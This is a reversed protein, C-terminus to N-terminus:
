KVVLKTIYSDKGTSIRVFYTGQAMGSLDLTHSASGTCEVEACTLTRGQMDVLSITAHGEVDYLVVTTSQSAPNPRIAYHPNADVNDIGINPTTTFSSASAWISLWDEGCISRVFVEYETEPELGTLTHSTTTVTDIRNTGPTMGRFGYNVLWTGTNNSGATWRVQATSATIDFVTVDEVPACEDTTVALTDSPDSTVIGGGCLTTVTFYYTTAPDLGTITLPHTTADMVEDVMTNFMHVQWTNTDVEASWDLVIEHGSTSVANLGTPVDCPMTDTVFTGTNWDSYYNTDCIQRISYSYATAPMLDGISYSMTNVVTAEPWEIESALKVAVEYSGLGGTWEITATTYTTSINDIEPVHCTRDGCTVLRMMNRYQVLTGAPITSNIRIPVGTSSTYIAVNSDMLNVRKESTYSGYYDEAGSRLVAVVVNSHGDWTFVSDFTFRNWGSIMNMNGSFYPTLSDAPLWDAGSRFSTRDTQGLYITCNEANNIPSYTLFELADVMVLDAMESSDILQQTYTYQNYEYFPLYAYNSSYLEHGVTDFAPNDCIETQFFGAIVSSTDASDCIATLEYEYRTNQTLGNLVISDDTLQLTTFADSSGLERYSFMHNNAESTWRITADTTTSTYHVNAPPLCHTVHNLTIDDMYAYWTSSPRDAKIAVYSGNGTYGEFTFTYETWTTNGNITLTDVGEFTTIDDPDTMVGVKFVPTYSTSSSKAWFSLILSNAPAVTTDVEPLVICYYDGYTNATTSGYWYMGKAGTHAYSTSASIYPYGYYSSANNLHHWCYAFTNTNSAGTNENEFSQFYPFTSILGCSTRAVHAFSWSSTDTASCICRVEVDYATSSALGTVSTSNTSCFFTTDGNPSSLRVQYGLAGSISDWTLDFGHTTTNSEQVNSPRACNPTLYLEVDDMYCYWASTSRSIKFAPFTGNGTYSAFSSEFGQWELVNEVYVTDVPVFSEASDPDNMVGVVFVPHYSTSTPRAWFTISTNAINYNSGLEPLVCFTYAPYSSSTAGYWYLYQNGTRSSTGSSVYPYYNTSAGPAVVRKWCYPFEAASGTAVGEFGYSFPLVDIPVCETRFSSSVVDSTDSGCLGRVYVMYPTNPTLGSFTYTTDTVLTENGFSSGGSVSVLYSPSTGTWTVFASDSTAEISEIAPPPCTTYGITIEDVYAYWAASGTTPHVDHIAVFTGEGTYSTLGGVLEQWNTTGDTSVTQCPVFTSADNPNTMVGIQFTPHYTASTAKTWFKVVVNQINFIDTNIQPSVLMFSDPYNVGPSAPHYWYLAKSGLHQYTTSNSVYPYFYMHADSNYTWCPIEPRSTSSSVAVDEWDLVIPLSDVAICYTRFTIRCPEAIGNDPCYPLIWADYETNPQLNIFSVMTDTVQIATSDHFNFGSHGLYVEWGGSSLTDLWHVDASTTTINDVYVDEVKPCDPIFQLNVEDLYFYRYATPHSYGMFALYSRHAPANYMNVEHYLPSTANVYVSDFAVFTSADNPDTVTGIYLYDYYSSSSTTAYFSLRLQNLVAVNTDVEPLVVCEWTPMGVTTTNLPPLYMYIYQGIAYSSGSNIYPYYSDYTGSGDSLFRWCPHSTRTGTACTEFGEEWPFVRLPGCATTFNVTNWQGATACHSRVYFTYSTNPQLGTFSLTTDSTTHTSTDNSLPMEARWEYYYAGTNAWTFSAATDGITSEIIGPRICSEFNLTIDDIYAYFLTGTTPKTMMLAVYRGNGEYNSLTVTFHQPAVLNTTVTDCAVFSNVNFPDSMVGVMIRPYYSTSSSSLWFDVVLNRVDVTDGLRPLFVGCRRPYNMTSTYYFYLSYSGTHAHAASNNLYPYGIYLSSHADNFHGWCPIVPPVDAAGYSTASDLDFTYPFTYIMGCTTDPVKVHYTSMLSTSATCLGKVVFEYEADPYLGNMTYSNTSVTDIHGFSWTSGCTDWMVEYLPANGDWMLTASSDTLRDIRVDEPLDCAHPVIQIDDIMLPPNEGTNGDNMWMVALCYTGAAAVTFTQSHYRLEESGSLPQTGNLSICTSPTTVASLIEGPISSATDWGITSATFVYSSPTLLVRGYDYISEGKCHWWYGVDYDGAAPFYLFTYAFVRSQVYTSDGATSSGVKYLNTHPTVYQQTIYMSSHGNPSTNAMTDIILYNYCSGNVFTWRGNQTANEFDCSYPVTDVATQSRLALPILAAAM